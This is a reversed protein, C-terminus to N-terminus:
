GSLGPVARQCWRSRRRSWNGGGSRAGPARGRAACPRPAPRRAPRTRVGAAWWVFRARLARSTRTIRKRRLAPGIGSESRYRRCTSRTVSQWQVAQSASQEWDAGSGGASWVPGEGSDRRLGESRRDSPNRRSEPSPGALGRLPSRDAPSASNWWGLNDFVSSHRMVRQLKLVKVHTRACQVRGEPGSRTGSFLMSRYEIDAM